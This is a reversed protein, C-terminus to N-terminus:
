LFDKSGGKKHPEKYGFYQIPKHFSQSPKHALEPGDFSYIKVDQHAQSWNVAFVNLQISRVFGYSQNKRELMSDHLFLKCCDACIFPMLRNYSIMIFRHKKNCTCVNPSTNDEYAERLVVGDNMFKFAYGNFRTELEKCYVNCFRYNFEGGGCNGCEYELSIKDYVQIVQDRSVNRVCTIMMGCTPCAFFLDFIVKDNLTLALYNM